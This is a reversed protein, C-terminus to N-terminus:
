PPPVYSGGSGRGGGGGRQGGGSSGGSSRPPTCGPDPDCSGPFTASGSGQASVQGDSGLLFGTGSFSFGSGPKGSASSPGFGQTDGNAMTGHYVTERTKCNLVTVSWLEGLKAGPDNLTVEGSWQNDTSDKEVCKNLGGDVSIREVCADDARTVSITLTAQARSPKPKRKPGGSGGGGGVSGSGRSGGTGASGGGGGSGGGSGGSGGGNAGGSSGGNPNTWGNNPDSTVNLGETTWDHARADEGTFDASTVVREYTASKIWFCQDLWGADRNLRIWRLPLAGPPLVQGAIGADAWLERRIQFGQEAYQLAEFIDLGSPM